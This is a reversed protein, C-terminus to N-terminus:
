QGFKAWFDLEQALETQEAEGYAPAHEPEAVAASVTSLVALAAIAPRLHKRMIIEQPTPPLRDAPSTRTSFLAQGPSSSDPHKPHQLSKVIISLCMRFGLEQHV